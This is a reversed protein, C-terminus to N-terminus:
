VPAPMMQRRAAAPSRRAREDLWLALYCALGLLFVATAGVFLYIIAGFNASFVSFIGNLGLALPIYRRRDPDLRRLLQPFMTGLPFGLPFLVLAILSIKVGVPLAMAAYMARNLFVLVLAGYAVVLLASRGITLLGRDFLKTSLFSGTASCVLLVALIAVLTLTPNGLFLEFKQISGVEILMFGAGLLAFGAFDRWATPGAPTRARESRELWLPVGLFLVAVLLASLLTAVYGIVLLGGQAGWNLDFYFFPRDDSHVRDQARARFLRPLPRDIGGSDVFRALAPYKPGTFPSYTVAMNHRSLAQELRAVQAASPPRRHYIAYQEADERGRAAYCIVLRKVDLQPDVDALAAKFTLLSRPLRDPPVGAAEVLVGGATLRALYSRFAERTFLFQPTSALSGTGTAFTAGSYSLLIVDYTRRSREVFARGEDIAMAITPKRFFARLNAPAYELGFEYVVPNLEVGQLRIRGGYWAYARLMDQGNGAMLVLYERLPLYLGPVVI